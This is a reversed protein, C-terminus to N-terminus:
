GGGPASGRLRATSALRAIQEVKVGLFSAATATDIVHRSYADAVVRVYGRGLDRSTNVYFNGGTPRSRSEQEEYRELFEERRAEYFQQSVRGLTLLRRLFAEASVGFPEAAEALAEYDWSDGDSMRSVVGPQNLVADAPMLAAAAIGNCRAELRRNENTARTDTVTDCLGGTHLALHAYEHLLTFLRGRAADAGNLCIVPVPTLYMSFGRAERPSVDGGATHIVLVGRAELVAIWTNLHEYQTGRGGAPLAPLGSTLLHARIRRGIAEDEVPLAALEWGEGPTTGELEALDLLQERQVLARRYEAHLEPSWPGAAAGAHRRFDRLTDFDAPPEALYFVALARRYLKAAKRLDEVTPQEVGAEWAAVRDDPLELKRAAAVPTLDITERAWRLLAPDVLAPIAAAPVVFM